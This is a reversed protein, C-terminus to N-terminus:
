WGAAEGLYYLDIRYTSQRQVYAPRSMTQYGVFLFDGAFMLGYSNDSNKPANAVVEGRRNLLLIREDPSGAVGSGVSVAILSGDRNIDMASFIGDYRYESLLKPELPSALDYFQLTGFGTQAIAM